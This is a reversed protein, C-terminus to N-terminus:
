LEAAYHKEHQTQCNVCRTANPLATRRAEPIEDGCRVCDTHTALARMSAPKRRALISALERENIAQARDAEDM